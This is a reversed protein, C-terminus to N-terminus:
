ETTALFAILDDRDKADAVNVPMRTGPILGPPDALFRDLNEKTWLVRKSKMGNSYTFGPASGAQRGVVGNLAPAQTSGRGTAVTHCLGCQDQFLEKGRQASPKDAMAPSTVTALASLALSAALVASMRMRCIAYPLHM